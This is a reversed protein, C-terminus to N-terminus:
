QQKVLVLKKELCEIVVPKGGFTKVPEILRWQDGGSEYFDAIVAIFAAEKSIKLEDLNLTTGPYITKEIPKGIQDTGLATAPDKLYSEITLTQFTADSLLQHIRVIVPNGKNCNDTPSFSIKVNKYNSSCFSTLLVFLATFLVHIVSLKASRGIFRM